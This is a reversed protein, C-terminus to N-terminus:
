VSVVTQSAAVKSLSSLSTFALSCTVRAAAAMRSAFAFVPLYGALRGRVNVSIYDVALSSKDDVAHAYGTYVIAFCGAVVFRTEPIWRRCWDWYRLDAAVNRTWAHRVNQVSTHSVVIFYM